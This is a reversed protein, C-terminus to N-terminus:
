CFTPKRSEKNVGPTARTPKTSGAAKQRNHANQMRQQILLTPGAPAFPLNIRSEKAPLIAEKDLNSNCVCAGNYPTM